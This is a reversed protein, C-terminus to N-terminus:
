GRSTQYCSITHSTLKFFSAILSLIPVSLPISYGRVPTVGAGTYCWCWCWRLVLMPTIGAGSKSSKLPKSYCTLVKLVKLVKFFKLVKLVLHPSQPSLAIQLLLLKSYFCNPTLAIQLLLLKSYSCNPTLAIQLSLLKVENPYIRM